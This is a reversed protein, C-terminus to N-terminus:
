SVLVSTFELYESSLKTKVIGSLVDLEKNQIMHILQMWTKNKIIIFKVDIIKEIEKLYDANLGKFNGKKEIFELPALNNDIGVRINRNNQLWEKEVKTLSIDQSFLNNHMLIIFILLFKYM